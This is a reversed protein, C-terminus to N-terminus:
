EDACYERLKKLARHKLVYIHNIELRTEAAIEDASWGEVYWRQIIHAQRQDLRTMAEQVVERKSELDLWVRMDDTPLLRAQPHGDEFCPHDLSDVVYRAHRRRFRVSDKLRNRLAREAWRDFSVDFPFTNRRLWHWLDACTKAAAERAEWKAWEERGAPGLWFYAHREMHRLVVTWRLSDGARLEEVREWEDMLRDLVQQAYRSLSLSSDQEYRCACAFRGSAINATLVSVVREIWLEADAGRSLEPSTAMLLRHADLVADRLARADVAVVAVPSSLETELACM